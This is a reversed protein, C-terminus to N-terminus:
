ATNPMNFMDSVHALTVSLDFDHDSRYPVSVRHIFLSHYSDDFHRGYLLGTYQIKIDVVPIGLIPGIDISNRLIIM